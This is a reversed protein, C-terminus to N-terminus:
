TRTTASILADIDQIVRSTRQLVEAVCREDVPETQEETSGRGPEASGREGRPVNRSQETQTVPVHHYMPLILPESFPEDQQLCSLTVLLNLSNRNQNYCTLIRSARSVIAGVSYRQGPVDPPLSNVHYKVEKVKGSEPEVKHHTFYCNLVSDSRIVSGDGPSVEVVSIAGSVIRYVVGHCMMVKVLERPFDQDSHEGGQALPDKVRWRHQHPSPCTLALAEPLRSRREERSIDTVNSWGYAPSSDGTGETRGRYASSSDGTGETGADGPPESCPGTRRRRALSLPYRWMPAVCSCSHHQVVTTSQFMEEPEPRAAGHPYNQPSYSRSRTSENKRSGGVEKTGDRALPLCGADSNQNSLGPSRHHQDHHQDRHQDHHQDHHQDRHQDHAQSLRCSFEVSFEEGSSSLTLAAKGEVSRIVTEGSPVLDASCGSGPWTVDSDISFFRKKSVAPILEGPLYPRAAFQNRFMLAADILEKYRSIAFRTRQRVREPNQQVGPGSPGPNQLLGPRSPGPNQQLGPGSPGPNQLLGPGSPGPNQLLGPGSPGPNQLLGPGSPEATKLLLFESGCPALQLRSGDTYRVDVSEDEYM